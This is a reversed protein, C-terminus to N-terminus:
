FKVHIMYSVSKSTHCKESLKKKNKFLLGSYLYGVIQKDM